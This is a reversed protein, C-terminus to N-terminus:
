SPSAAAIANDALTLAVVRREVLHRWWFLNRAQTSTWRHQVIIRSPPLPRRLVPSQEVVRSLGCMDFNLDANLAIEDDQIPGSASGQQRPAGCEDGPTTIARRCVLNAGRLVDIRGARPCWLEDSRKLAANVLEFLDCPFALRLRKGVRLESSPDVSEDLQLASLRIHERHNSVEGVLRIVTMGLDEGLELRLRAPTARSGRGPSRHRWEVLPSELTDARQRGM